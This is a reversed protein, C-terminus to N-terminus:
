VEHEEGKMQENFLKEYSVFIEEEDHGGYAWSSDVNLYVGDDDLEVDFSYRVGKANIDHRRGLNDNEWKLIEKAREIIEHKMELVEKRKAKYANIYDQTIKSM